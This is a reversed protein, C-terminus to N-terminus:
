IGDEVDFEHILPDNMFEDITDDSLILDDEISDEPIDDLLIPHRATGPVVVGYFAILRYLPVQLNTTPWPVLEEDGSMHMGTRIVDFVQVYKKFDEWSIDRRCLMKDFVSITEAIDYIVGRVQVFNPNM